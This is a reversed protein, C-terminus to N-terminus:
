PILAQEHMLSFVKFECKLTEITLASIRKRENVPLTSLISKISGNKADIRDLTKATTFYFNM